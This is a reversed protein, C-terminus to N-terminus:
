GGISSTLILTKIIIIMITPKLMLHEM